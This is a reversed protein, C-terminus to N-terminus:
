RASGGVDVVRIPRPTGSELRICPSAFSRARWRKARTARTSRLRPRGTDSESAWVPGSRLRSNRRWCQQPRAEARWRCWLRRRKDCPQVDHDAALQRDDGREPGRVFRQRRVPERIRDLKGRQTVDRTRVRASLPEPSECQSPLRPRCQPARCSRLGMPGGAAIRELYRRQREALRALAHVVAGHEGVRGHRSHRSNSSRRQKQQSATARSPSSASTTGTPNVAHRRVQGSVDVAGSRQNM